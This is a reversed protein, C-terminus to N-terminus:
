DQSSAEHDEAPVASDSPLCAAICARPEGGPGGRFKSWIGLCWTCRGAERGLISDGKDEAGSGGGKVVKRSFHMQNKNKLGLRMEYNLCAKFERHVGAPKWTWISAGAEAERSSPDCALMVVSQADVEKLVPRQGLVHAPPGHSHLAALSIFTQTVLGPASFPSRPVM